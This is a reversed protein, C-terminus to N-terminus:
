AVPERIIFRHVNDGFSDEEKISWLRSSSHRSLYRSFELIDKTIIDAQDHTNAVFLDRKKGGRNRLDLRIVDAPTLSNKRQYEGVTMNVYKEM